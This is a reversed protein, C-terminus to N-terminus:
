GITSAPCVPPLGILHGERVAREVDEAPDVTTICARQTERLADIIAHNDRVSLALYAPPRAKPALRLVLLESAGGGAITFWSATMENMSLSSLWAAAREDPRTDIAIVPLRVVARLGADAREIRVIASRGVILMIGGADEPRPRRPLPSPM